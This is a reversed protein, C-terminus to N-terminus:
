FHYHNTRQGYKEKRQKFYNIPCIGFLFGFLRYRFIAYQIEWRTKQSKLRHLKFINCEGALRLIDLKELNERMSAFLENHSDIYYRNQGFSYAMRYGNGTLLYEWEKYKVFDTGTYIAEIVVVWPRNRGFDMGTLVDREHGEVDIKCFHIPQNKDKLNEDLIDSLPKVQLKEKKKLGRDGYWQMRDIDCTTGPGNILFDAEGSSSSAAINLNVDRPRDRCLETFPGELPEINIGNWGMDYFLKTVSAYWPSYAGVDVYFGKEVGALACQLIVDEFHESYTLLSPKGRRDEFM